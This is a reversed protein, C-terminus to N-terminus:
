GESERESKSIGKRITKMFKRDMDNQKRINPM